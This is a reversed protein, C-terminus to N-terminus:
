WSVVIKRDTVEAALGAGQLVQILRPWYAIAPFNNLHETMVNEQDQQISIDGNEHLILQSHGRSNLDTVLSELISRGQVEFWIQPDVPQKNPPPNDESRNGESVKNLPVVRLMDFCIDANKNLKVDAHDYDNIGFIKIRGTGGNTILKIPNESCWEWTIDGYTSRLYMSIRHNVHMLLLQETSPDKLQPIEFSVSQSIGNEQLARKMKLCQKKRKARRFQPAVLVFAVWLMWLAFITILLGFQWKGRILSLIAIVFGIFICLGRQLAKEKTM